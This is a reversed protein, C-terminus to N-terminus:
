DRQIYRCAPYASCGIFYKTTGFRKRQKHALPEGCRPCEGLFADPGGKELKDQCGVCYRTGPSAARREPPIETGCGSCRLSNGRTAKLQPGWPPKGSPPAPVVPGCPPLPPDEGPEDPGRGNVMQLINSSLEHHARLAEIQEEDLELSEGDDPLAELSQILQRLIENANSLKM